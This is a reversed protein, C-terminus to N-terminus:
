ASRPFLQRRHAAHDVLLLENPTSREMSVLQRLVRLRGSTFDNTNLRIQGARLHEGIHRELTAYDACPPLALERKSSSSTGECSCTTARM